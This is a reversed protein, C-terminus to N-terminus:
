SLAEVLLVAAILLFFLATVPQEGTGTQYLGYSVGVTVVGVVGSATLHVTEIRRTDADRGLQKGISIANGGVDWALVSFTVSILVPVVPASQVGAIIGGVFLGFAGTTVAANAGRVLGIILLLVGMTGVALAPWSYFGSAGLAVFAASGSVWSSLRAPTRQIAKMVVVARQLPRACRRGSRGM